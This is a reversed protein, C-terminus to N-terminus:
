SERSFFEHEFYQGSFALLPIPTKAIPQSLSLRVHHHM